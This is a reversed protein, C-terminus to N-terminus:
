GNTDGTLRKAVIDAKHALHWRQRARTSDLWDSLLGCSCKGCGQPANWSLRYGFADHPAGENILYHGSVRTNKPM